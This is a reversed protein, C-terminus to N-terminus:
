MGQDISIPSLTKIWEGDVSPGLPFLGTKTVSIYLEEDAQALIKIDQQRLCNIDFEYGCGALRSFNRYLTDLKGGPCNDWAWQYGPSQAVFSRFNPNVKGDERTLHHLISAAGASEGWASVKDRDGGVQEIYQQVWEFLLAQDYLGANPQGVQEMYNGSLWGFAGIRYNGTVFITNYESARIISQGSYMPGGQTKSGFAYGGGYIWVTVPLKKQQVLADKPVYLDLFLCDETQYLEETPDLISGPGEPPTPTKFPDIQYCSINHESHQFSDDIWDPSYSRSFREPQAGFRVNSFM